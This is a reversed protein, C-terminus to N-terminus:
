LVMPDTIYHNIHQGRTHYITPERDLGPRIFGLVIFNTLMAEESFVSFEIVVQFISTELRSCWERTKLRGNMVAAHSCPSERGWGPRITVIYIVRKFFHRYVRFASVNGWVSMHENPAAKIQKICVVPKIKKLCAYSISM